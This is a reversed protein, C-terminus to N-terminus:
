VGVLDPSIFLRLATLALVKAAVIACEIGEESGARARFEDTHTSVGEFGRSIIPHIVPVQRSVNGIDYAGPAEPPASLPTLGEDKLYEECIRAMTENVLIPEGLAIHASPLDFPSDFGIDSQWDAGAHFLIYGDYQSFDISDTTDAAAFADRTFKEVQSVYWVQEESYDHYYGMDHPLVYASQPESPVVDFEIELHDYSVSSYYNALATMHLSFYEHDHPPSDFTAEQLESYDFGGNGTSRPDSDPLFAVRLALLRITTRGDRSRGRSAALEIAGIEPVDGVFVKPAGAIVAGAPPDGKWCILVDGAASPLSLAVAVLAAAAGTISRGLNGSPTM